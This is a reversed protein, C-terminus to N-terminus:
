VSRRREASAPWRAATPSPCLLEVYAPYGDKDADVFALDVLPEDALTRLTTRADGLRLEIRDELGARSWASRAVSTWEDSADFCVLHGDDPLGKALDRQVRHLPESWRRVHDLLEPTVPLAKM